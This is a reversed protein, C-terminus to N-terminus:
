DEDPEAAEYDSYSPTQLADSSKDETSYSSVTVTIGSNGQVYVTGDEGKVTVDNGGADVIRGAAYLADITCDETVTWVSDSSVYVNCYGDGGNGAWTEDDVFYGTLTSGNTLYFDLTSISDYVIKGSVDQSNGTFTCQAGNAGASGWGRKNTNGTVQLFFDNDESYNIDVDSLLIESSTNTTYFLGGNKSTLTGGVMSFNGTGIESDGSMSQYVIVDWTVDNQDDDPMNGTLDCDFLRLTNLGEICVAESGTATLDADEITIDATTYVAPSGSGNSTYSGGEVVMTGGGRDSRIAAASGGNTTVDLDWAYLTGGGAVHIGGSANQNTNITTDEVYATGDGYAFVGAGGSADTTINSDEVYLTGDKALLAAGVGYFSANDGGSSDNSTRTVTANDIKVEAGGDVLVANEDTGTSTYTEGSTQTDESYTTVASYDVSAASGQGGMGGPQGNGDQPGNGNQQGNGGNQNNGGKQGMGGPGGMGDPGGHGDKLSAEAVKAVSGDENLTITLIMGETIEELTIGDLVSEDITYTATEDSATFLDALNMDGRGQGNPLEPPTQGDTTPAQGEPLEPPTQGDTTGSQADTTERDDTQSDSSASSKNKGDKMNSTGQGNGGPGGHRGGLEGLTVNITNGSVSDVRATVKTENEAKVETASSEVDTGASAAASATTTTTTTTTGCAALGATMTMAIMLALYKKNKMRLDKEENFPPINESTKVGRLTKPTKLQHQCNVNM